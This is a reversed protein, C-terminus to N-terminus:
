GERVHPVYNYQRKSYDPLELGIDERSKVMVSRECERACWRSNLRMGTTYPKPDGGEYTGPDVPADPLEDDAMHYYDDPDIDEGQLYVRPRNNIGWAKHCCGDCALVLPHGFYLIDKTLIEGMM